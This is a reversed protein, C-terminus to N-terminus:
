VYLNRMREKIVNEGIGSRKASLILRVAKFENERAWVYAILPGATFYEYKQSQMKETIFDDCQKEFEAPSNHLASVFDKYDTDQLYSCVEDIGKQAATILSSVDLTDCEVLAENLIGRSKNIKSARLATKIDASAVAIESYIRVIDVRSEKGARYLARLAASDIIIDCLQGDSTQLLTSLARQATEQMEEPLLSYDATEISKLVTQPSVTFGSVFMNEPDAGRTVAKVAVKLNHYDDPIKFIGFVSIDEVLESMLSWLKERESSLLSDATFCADDGWGKDRLFRIASQESDEAILRDIDQKNLLFPEKSRIRSVAYIYDGSM